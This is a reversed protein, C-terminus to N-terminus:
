RFDSIWRVDSEISQRIVGFPFKCTSTHGNDAELQRATRRARATMCSSESQHAPPADRLSYFVYYLRIDMYIYIYLVICHLINRFLQDLGSLMNVLHNSRNGCSSSSSSSSSPSSSSSSTTQKTKKCKFGSGFISRCSDCHLCFLRSSEHHTSVRRKM